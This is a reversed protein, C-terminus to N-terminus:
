HRDGAGGTCGIGQKQKEMLAEAKELVEKMDLRAFLIEPQDTVKTGSEYLGFTDMEELTRKKANLQSLIKKSTGPMFSELLSAGISISEVLNYLFPRWVTQRRREDKALAWPM